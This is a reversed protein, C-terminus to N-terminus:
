SKKLSHLNRTFIEELDAITQQMDDSSGLREGYLGNVISSVLEISLEVDSRWKINAKKYARQDDFRELEQGDIHFFTKNRIALLRKSFSKLRNIQNQEAKVLGRDYLIWFSGVREEWELVRMLRVLVDSQYAFKTVIVFANRLGIAELVKL